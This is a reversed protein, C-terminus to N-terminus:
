AQQVDEIPFILSLPTPIEIKPFPAASTRLGSEAGVAKLGKRKLRACASHVDTIPEGDDFPVAAGQRAAAYKTVFFAYEHLM